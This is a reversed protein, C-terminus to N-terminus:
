DCGSAFATGFTLFDFVTFEGDGDVDALPDGAQFANLYALVDFVDIVGSDDVDALCRLVFELFAGSEGHVRGVFGSFNNEVSADVSLEYQGTQLALTHGLLVPAATSTSLEIITETPPSLRRLNMNAEGGVGSRNLGLVFRALQPRDLNFRISQRNRALVSGFGGIEGPYGNVIVTGYISSDFRIENSEVLSEVDADFLVTVPSSGAGDEYSASWFAFPDPPYFFDSRFEGGTGEARLFYSVRRSDELLTMQARAPVGMSAVALVAIAPRVCKM